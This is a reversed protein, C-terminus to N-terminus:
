HEAKRRLVTLEGSGPDLAPLKDDRAGSAFALKLPDSSLPLSLFRGSEEYIIGREVLEGLFRRVDAVSITNTGIARVVRELTAGAECALFGQAQPGELLWRKVLGQERRDTIRVFDPGREYYLTARDKSNARARWNEVASVLGRTYSAPDRGDLHRYDFVYAIDALSAGDVSYLHSYSPHPGLIEIGHLEPSSFYPSFRHVDLRGIFPPPLHVLHKTLLAIRGYEDIPENPFGYLLNWTPVIGLEACWKLLRINQFATVGKKMLTLIPTSLSEIGPQISYVGAARLAVLDARKLNSKTEYFLRFDLGTAELLPLMDHIYKFDIINDVAAFNLVHYRRALQVLDMVAHSARKSRFKMSSGNLGCFTCHMKEGWWCGRASEVHIRVRHELGELTPSKELRQFYEDYNPSPVDDMPYATPSQPIALSRGDQRVCIGPQLSPTRDDLLERMLTAVVPEGEGRVVVDIYLFNRHLAAGMVGDCNGGGFVVKVSPDSQKIRRALALSGLNQAFTSTFAVVKPQLELLDVACADVFSATQERIFKLHQPFRLSNDAKAIYDYFRADDDDAQAQTLSVDLTELRFVWEGALDMRECIQDYASLNFDAPAKAAARALHEFFTVHYSRVESPIGERDLIAKLIGLQISPTDIKLFPMAVLVVPRAYKGHSDDATLHDGNVIPPDYRCAMELALSAHPGRLPLARTLTASRPGSPPQSEDTV